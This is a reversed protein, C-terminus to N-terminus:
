GNNIELIMCSKVKGKNDKWKIFPKMKNVCYECYVETEERNIFDYENSCGKADCEM